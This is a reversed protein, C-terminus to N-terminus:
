PVKITYSERIISTGGWQSTQVPPLHDGQFLIRGKEDTFHVFVVYDEDMKDLAKWYYTIEFTDNPSLLTENIDYGMFMIKYDFIVSFNHHGPRTINIYPERALIEEGPEIDDPSENMSVGVVNGVNAPKMLYMLSLLVISVIIVRVWKIKRKGMM